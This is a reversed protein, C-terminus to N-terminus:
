IRKLSYLKHALRIDIQKKASEGIARAQTDQVKQEFALEADAINDGDNPHGLRGGRTVEGVQQAGAQDLFSLLSQPRVVLKSRGSRRQM